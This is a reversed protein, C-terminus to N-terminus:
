PVTGVLEVADIESWGDVIDGFSIRLRDTAFTIPKLPPSFTTIEAPSPDDGSWLEVWADHDAAFAEVRVVAGNGYTEVIGVASPLVARAYTLELWEVTGDSAAPAWAAPSDTYSAVDPVGTAQGASWPDTGYESSASADTAWQRLDAGSPAMSFSPGASAAPAITALAM